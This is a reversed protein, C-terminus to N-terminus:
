RGCTRYTYSSIRDQAFFNERWQYCALLRHFVVESLFLIGPINLLGAVQSLLWRKPVAPKWPTLKKSDQTTM